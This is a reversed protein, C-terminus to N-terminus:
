IVKKEKKAKADLSAGIGTGLAIGIALGAGIDDLLTDVVLGISIGLAVGIGIYYGGPVLKHHKHLHYTLTGYKQQFVKREERSFRDSNGLRSVLDNVEGQLTRCTDCEGSLEAIRKATRTLADANYKKQGRTSLRLKQQEIEGAVKEYWDTFDAM